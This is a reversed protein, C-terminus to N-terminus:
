ESQERTDLWTLLVALAQVSHGKLGYLPGPSKKTGWAKQRGPGFREALAERVQADNGSARGLLHKKVAIRTVFHLPYNRERCFYRLEGCVKATEITHRGLVSGQATLDECVVAGPQEAAIAGFLEAVSVADATVLKWLPHERTEWAVFGCKEPGPDIGVVIM